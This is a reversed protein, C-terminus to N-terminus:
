LDRKVETDMDDVEVYEGNRIVLKRKPADGKQNQIKQYFFYWGPFSGCVAVKPNDTEFAQASCDPCRLGKIEKDSFPGDDEDYEDGDERTYRKGKITVTDSYFESTGSNGAWFGEIKVGATRAASQMEKEGTIVSYIPKGANDYYVESM